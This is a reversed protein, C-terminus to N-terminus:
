SQSTAGSLSFSEKFQASSPLPLSNTTCSKARAVSIIYATIKTVLLTTLIANWPIYYSGTKIPYKLWAPSSWVGASVIKPEKYSKVLHWDLTSLQKFSECDDSCHLASLVMPIIQWPILLFCSAAFNIFQLDWFSTWFSLRTDSPVNSETATVMVVFASHLHTHTPLPPCHTIIVPIVLRGSYHTLLQSVGVSTLLKFLWVLEIAAILSQM